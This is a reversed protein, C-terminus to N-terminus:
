ARKARRRLVAIGGLATVLLLGGAPLPVPTPAPAATKGDIDFEIGTYGGNEFFVIEFATVGEGADVEFITERFPRLDMTGIVNGGITLRFGDDSRLSITEQGAALDLYGTFRFVTTKVAGVAASLSAGDAGLFDAIATKSKVQDASGNPYDIGTSLFTADPANDAVISLADALSGIRDDSEYVEGFFVPAASALGPLALLLPALLLSKLSM